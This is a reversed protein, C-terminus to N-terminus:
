CNKGFDYIKDLNLINKWVLITLLEVSINRLNNIKRLQKVKDTFMTKFRNPVNSIGYTMELGKKNIAYYDNDNFEHLSIM